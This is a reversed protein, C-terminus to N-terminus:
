EQREDAAIALTAVRTSSTTGSFVGFIGEGEDVVRDDPQAAHIYAQAATLAAGPTAHGFSEWMPPADVDIPDIITASYSVAPHRNKATAQEREARVQQSLESLLDVIPEATKPTSALHVRLADKYLRDDVALRHTIAARTAAIHDLLRAVEALVDAIDTEAIVIGTAILEDVADQASM